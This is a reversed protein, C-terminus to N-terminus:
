KDMDLELVKNCKYFLVLNKVNTFEGIEAYEVNYKKFVDKIKSINEPKVSIVM